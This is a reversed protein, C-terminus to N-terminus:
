GFYELIEKFNDEQLWSNKMKRLYTLVGQKINPYKSHIESILEAQHSEENIVLAEVIARSLYQIQKYLEFIAKKDEQSFAKYEHMNIISDPSPHLVEELISSCYDLRNEMRKLIEKTAFAEADITSVHFERDLDEFTPLTYKETLAPYLDKM